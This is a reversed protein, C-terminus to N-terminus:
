EGVMTPKVSLDSPDISLSPRSAEGDGYIMTTGHTGSVTYGGDVTRTVTTIGQGSSGYVTFGTPTEYVSYSGHPTQVFLANTDLAVVLLFLGSWKIM